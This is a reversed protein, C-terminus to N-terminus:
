WYKKNYNTNQIFFEFTKNRKSCYLKKMQSLVCETQAFKLKVNVKHSWALKDQYERHIFMIFMLKVNLESAYEAGCSWYTRFYLVFERSLIWICIHWASHLYYKSESTTKDFNGISNTYNRSQNTSFYHSLGEGRCCVKGNM